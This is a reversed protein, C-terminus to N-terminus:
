GEKVSIKYDNNKITICIEGLDQTSIINLQETEGSVIYNEFDAGDPIESCILIDGELYKGPVFDGRLIVTFKVGDIECVAVSYADKSVYRVSAGNWLRIDANSSETIKEGDCVSLLSGNVAPVILRDFNNNKIVSYVSSSSRGVIDAIIVDAKGTYSGLAESIESSLYKYDGESCIVAKHNNDSLVVAIDGDVDLVSVNSCGDNEYYYFVNCFIITAALSVCSIKFATKNKFFLVSGIIVSYLFIVGYKWYDSETDVCANPLASIKEIVFIIYKSISGSLVALIDSMGTIPYFLASLGSFLMCLSAAYSILVNTIVSYVSIYGIFIIVFCLSGLTASVSVFILEFVSKVVSFFVGSPLKYIVYKKLLPELTIIGLTASFSLLFGIDATIMPNIIGLVLASFGLSNVSDSKKYFLNGALVLLLMIGSRCVSPTFGTVAMFFVTFAMGILSNLRKKVKLQELLVYLGIVWVSLHMGSVAFVPAVGALKIQASLEDSIFDKNGTLMGVCVGGLDNPLKDLVRSEVTKRIKLLYFGIPKDENKIIEIPFNEYNSVYGGLFFGKSRYYLKVSKEEAGLDYLHVKLRVTDYPEADIYKAASLRLKTEFDTGDVTITKLEYYYRTGSFFPEDLVAATIEAERDTLREADSLKYDALVEFSVGSLILAAAVFFPTIRERFKRIFATLLLIIVGAGVALLSFRDDFYTCVFLVILSSFGMIAM